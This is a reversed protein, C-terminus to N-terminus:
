LVGRDVLEFVLASNQQVAQDLSSQLELNELLMNANTEELINFKETLSKGTSGEQSVEPELAPPSSPSGISKVYDKYAQDITCYFAKNYKKRAM